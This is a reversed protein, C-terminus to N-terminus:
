QTSKSSIVASAVLLGAIIAGINALAQWEITLGSTVGDLAASRLGRLATAGPVLVMVAPILVTSTPQHRMTSFLSAFLGVGLAGLFSGQWYGLGSGLSVGSHAVLGALLVWIFDRPRVQFVFALGAVLLVAFLWVWITDPPTSPLPPAISHVHSLLALGIAAGIFLNLLTLTGATLRQLGSSVKRFSLEAIGLTLSYGPLLVVLGALIVSIHNSGPFTFDFLVALSAVLLGSILEIQGGFQPWSRCLLAVVYVALSALASFFVDAWGLNLLVGFGAGCLAYGLGVLLPGFAPPQAKVDNMAAFAQRITLSGNEIGARIEFLGNVRTLDFGPSPMPAYHIRQRRDKPLWVVFLISAPTVDFKGMLGVSGAVNELMSALRHSSIGYGHALSGIDILFRFAEEHKLDDFYGDPM